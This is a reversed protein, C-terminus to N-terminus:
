QGSHAQLYMHLLLLKCVQDAGLYNDVFVLSEPLYQRCAATVPNNNNDTITITIVFICTHACGRARAHLYACM